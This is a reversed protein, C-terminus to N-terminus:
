EGNAKLIETVTLLDIPENSHYAKVMAGYIKANADVYFCEPTIIANAKWISAGELLIAALIAEELERSQPPLKGIEM